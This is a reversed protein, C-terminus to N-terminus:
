TPQDKRIYSLEHTIRSAVEALQDVDGTIVFAEGNLPDELVLCWPTTIDNDDLALAGAAIERVAAAVHLDDTTTIHTRTSM